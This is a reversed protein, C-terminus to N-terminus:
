AACSFERDAETPWFRALADEVAEALRARLDEAQEDTFTVPAEGMFSVDIHVHDTEVDIRTLIAPSTM